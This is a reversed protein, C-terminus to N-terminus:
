CNYTYTTTNGKRDTFHTRDGRANTIMTEFTDDPYDVRDVNGYSDYSYTTTNSGADTVTELEGNTNYTNTQTLIGKKDTVTLVQHHANYTFDATNGRNDSEVLLHHQSDYTYNRVNSLEDEQSTMNHDADYTYKKSALTFGFLKNAPTVSEILHDQGDYIKEYKNGEADIQGISRSKDDYLYVIKGNKPDVQTNEYGTYYFAWKKNVADGESYQEKVRSKADYVNETLTQSKPDRLETIRHQSDYVFEWNHNDPDTTTTLDDGTYTFDVDRGTSDAVRTIKDGSWTLTLSRDYADTVSSVRGSGNYTFTLTKGYPDVISALRMDSNFQYTNGHRESLEYNDGVKALTMTMGAPPLYSGDPLKVFEITQNGMTVSVGSYLLQDIAWKVTLAATQWEKANTNDDYLDKAVAVATAYPTMHGVTTEGLGPKIASRETVFADLNHTWGYGLGPTKDYRRNSNYQRSFALGRPVQRGISLDTKEYTFAGSAM